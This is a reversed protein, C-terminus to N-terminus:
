QDFQKFAFDVKLRQGASLTFEQPACQEAPESVLCDGTQAPDRVVRYTGPPLTASFRGVGDTRAYLIVSGHVQHFALTENRWLGQGFTRSETYATGTVLGREPLHGSVVLALLLGLALIPIGLVINSGRNRGAAFLRM